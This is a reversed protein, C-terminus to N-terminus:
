FQGYNPRGVERELVGETLFRAWIAASRAPIDLVIAYHSGELKGIISRTYAMAALLRTAEFAGVREPLLRGLSLARASRERIAVFPELKRGV